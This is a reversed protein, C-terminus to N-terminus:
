LELQAAANRRLAEQIVPLPHHTGKGLGPCGRGTSEWSRRTRLNSGWFPWTRCQVPRAEYVTCYAKGQEDRGLFECDGNEFEKLSTRGFLKRTHRKRFQAPTLGRLEALAVVEEDSVWVFGPAGGCCNGCQTCSFSLGDAYWPETRKQAM